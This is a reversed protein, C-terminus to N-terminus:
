IHDLCRHTHFNSQLIHPTNLNSILQCKKHHQSQQKTLHPVARNLNVKTPVNLYFQIGISMRPNKIAREQKKIRKFFPNKDNGM